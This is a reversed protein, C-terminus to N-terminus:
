AKFLRAARMTTPCALDPQLSWRARSARRCRCVLAGTSTPTPQCDTCHQHFITLRPPRQKGSTAQGHYLLPALALRHVRQHYAVHPLLPRPTVCFALHADTLRDHPAEGLYAQSTPSARPTHSVTPLPWKAAALPPAPVPATV